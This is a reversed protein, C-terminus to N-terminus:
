LFIINACFFTSSLIKACFKRSCIIKTFFFTKSDIIITCCNNRTDYKKQEWGFEIPGNLHGLSSILAPRKLLDLFLPSRFPPSYTKKAVSSHGHVLRSSSALSSIIWRSRSRSPSRFLRGYAHTRKRTRQEHNSRGREGSTPLSPWLSFLTWSEPAKVLAGFLRCVSIHIVHQARM